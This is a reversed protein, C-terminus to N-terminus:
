VREYERDRIVNEFLGHSVSTENKNLQHECHFLYWRAIEDQEDLRLVEKFKNRAQYFDNAYFLRLANQFEKNSNRKLKRKNEAYADLCEYVKIHTGENDSIYGLYRVSFGRGIAMLTQETIVVGVGARAFIDLYLDLIKEERCYMYPTMMDQVGLVGYHYIAQHVLMVIPTNKLEEKATHAQYVDIAYRLAETESQKFFVKRSLLDDGASIFIGETKERLRHTIRMSETLVSMYDEQKLDKINDMNFHVMTGNIKNSDGIEIDAVDPKNLLQEMGKPVFRYYSRYLMDREYRLKAMSYGIQNLPGWAGGLGGTKKPKEVYIKKEQAVLHMGEIFKQWKSVFVLFVLMYSIMVVVALGLIFNWTSFVSTEVRKEIGEASIVALLVSRAEIQTFDRSAVVYRGGGSKNLQVMASSHNSVTQAILETIEEGYYESINMGSVLNGALIVNGNEPNVILIDEVLNESNKLKRWFVDGEVSGDAKQLAKMEELVYGTEVGTEMLEQHKLRNTFLFGAAILVTVTFIGAFSIMRYILHNQGSGGYLLLVALAAGILVPLLWALAAEKVCFWKWIGEAGEMLEKELHPHLIIEESKLNWEELGVGRSYVCGDEQILLLQEKNYVGCVAFHGRPFSFSTREKWTKDQAKKDLIYETVTRGDDGLISVYIVDENSGAAFFSGKMEFIPIKWEENESVPFLGVMTKEEQQFSFLYYVGDSHVTGLTEFDEYGQITNVVRFETQQADKYIIYDKTDGRMVQSFYGHDSNGKGVVAKKSAQIGVVSSVGLLLLLTVMGFIAIWKKM